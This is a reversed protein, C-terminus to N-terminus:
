YSPNLQYRIKANFSQEDKKSGLVVRITKEGAEQGFIKGAGLELVIEGQEGRSISPDPVDIWAGSDSSIQTKVQPTNNQDLPTTPHLVLKITSEPLFTPTEQAGVEALTSGRVTKVAGYPGRLEYIPLVNEAPRLYLALLIAAALATVIGLARLMRRSTLSVVEPEPTRAAEALGQLQMLGHLEEQCQPCTALHVRFVDADEASLEGDSFAHLM